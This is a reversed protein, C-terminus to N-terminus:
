VENDFFITEVKENLAKSIKLITSATTNEITGNELGSIITRSVGSIKALEEQSIKKKERFDKIKCNM